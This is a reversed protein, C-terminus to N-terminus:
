HQGIDGQLTAEQLGDTAGVVFTVASAFVLFEHRTM